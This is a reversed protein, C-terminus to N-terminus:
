SRSVDPAGLAELRAIVGDVDADTMNPVDQLAPDEPGMGLRERKSSGLRHYGMVHVGACHHLSRALEAIGKLHDERLNYGPIIPCRLVLAAGQRDLAVLNERIRENPRGTFARHREPDTEKWDYLFLDVYPAIAAYQEPSALGCTEMCIHLGAARGAVLLAQLFEFQLMPEGGSVTMGGGSTEYFPEDKMVEAMVEAVTMETGMVELARAYCEEVCRFCRACAERDVVHVTGEMRHAQQPCTRFCYGCGICLRPTFSLQRPRTYSEPNHCWACRLPCGKFFVTTRIGPGDHISFKQIDFITGTPEAM